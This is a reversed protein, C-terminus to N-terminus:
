YGANLKGTSVAIYRKDPGEFAPAVHYGVLVLLVGHEKVAYVGNIEYNRAGKRSAPLRKDKQMTVRGTKRGELTLELLQDPGLQYEDSGPIDNEKVSLELTEAGLRFSFSKRTNEAIGWEGDIDHLCVTGGFATSALNLKRLTPVAKRRNQQRVNELTVNGSEDQIAQTKVPNAAWDNTKLEIFYIESYPDGSGDLEGYQEYAFYESTGDFGIIEIQANDGAFSISVLLLTMIAMLTLQKM